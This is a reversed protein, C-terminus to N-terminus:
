LLEDPVYVFMQVIYYELLSQDCLNDLKFAKLM